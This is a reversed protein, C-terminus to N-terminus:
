GKEAYFARGAERAIRVFKAWRDNQLVREAPTLSLNFRIQGLDVDGSADTAPM